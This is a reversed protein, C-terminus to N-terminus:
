RHFDGLNQDNTPTVQSLNLLGKAGKAADGIYVQEDTDMNWKLQMGDYKQTDISPGTCRCETRYRDLWAGHGVIGAPLGKEIDVNLWGACHGAPQDLKVTPMRHVPLLLPPTPSPASRTLLLCTKVCSFIASWTQSTLPLNLTQDLRELEHVFPV